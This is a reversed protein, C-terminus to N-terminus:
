NGSTAAPAHPTATVVITAKRDGDVAVTGGAVVSEIVMDKPGITVTTDTEKGDGFTETVTVPVVTGVLDVLGSQAGENLITFQFQEYSKVPRPVTTFHTDGYAAIKDVEASEGPFHTLDLLKGLIGAISATRLAKNSM